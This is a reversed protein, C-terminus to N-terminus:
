KKGACLGDPVSTNCTNETFTNDNINVPVGNGNNLDVGRNETAINGIIDNESSQGDFFIGNVSGTVNNYRITSEGSNVFTIGALDNSDFSNNIIRFDDSSKSSVGISNSNLSNNTIEAGSAETNFIGIENNDISLNAIKTNESETNLVGAQFNRITGNGLVKVNKSQSVLIGVMQSKEGPGSITYGNFNVTIGDAGIILGDSSCYLNSTLNIDSKIVDGCVLNQKSSDTFNPDQESRAHPSSDIANREPEDWQFSLKYYKPIGTMSDETAFSEFRATKGIDVIDPDTYCCDTAGVMKKNEDYFYGVVKANELVKDGANRFAGNVYFSGTSSQYSNSFQTEISNMEGNTYDKDTSPLLTLKSDDSDSSGYAM